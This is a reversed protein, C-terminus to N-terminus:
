HCEAACVIVWQLGLRGRELAIVAIVRPLHKLELRERGWMGTADQTPCVWKWPPRQSRLATIGCEM